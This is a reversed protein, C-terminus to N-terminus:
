LQVSYNSPSHDALFGPAEFWSRQSDLAKANSLFQPEGVHEIGPIPPVVTVIDRPNVVRYIKIHNTVQVFDSNGM